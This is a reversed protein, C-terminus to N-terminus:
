IPKLIEKFHCATKKINLIIKIIMGMSLLVKICTYREYYLWMFHVNFHQDGKYFGSTIYHIGYNTNHNLKM